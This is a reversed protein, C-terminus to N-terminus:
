ATAHSKKNGFFLGLTRAIIIGIMAVGTLLLVIVGYPKTILLEAAQEGGMMGLMTLKIMGLTAISLGSGPIPFLLALAVSLRVSFWSAIAQEGKLLTRVLVFSVLLVGALGLLASPLILFGMGFQDPLTQWGAGLVPTLITDFFQAMTNIINNM